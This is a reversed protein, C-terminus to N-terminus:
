EAVAGRSTINLITPHDHNGAPMIATATITLTYNAAHTCPSTSITLTSNVSGIKTVTVNVPAFLFSPGNLTVPNWTGTLTVTNNFSNIGTIRVTTSNTRGALISLTSSGSTVSFDVINVSVLIQHLVGGSTANVSVVYNGLAAGVSSITLTSVGTGGATLTITPV